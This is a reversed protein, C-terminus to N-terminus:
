VILLFDRVFDSSFNNKLEMFKFIDGVIPNYHKKSNEVWFSLGKCSVYRVEEQNM